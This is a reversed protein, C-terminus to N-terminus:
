TTEMDKFLTYKLMGGSEQKIQLSSRYKGQSLHTFLLYIMVTNRMVCVYQAEMVMIVVRAVKHFMLFSILFVMDYIYYLSFFIFYLFM